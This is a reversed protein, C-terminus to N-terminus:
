PPGALPELRAVMRAALVMVVSESAAAYARLQSSADAELEALRVELEAATTRELEAIARAVDDDLGRAQDRAAQRAQEVITIAEARAAALEDDLQRETQVLELLDGQRETM